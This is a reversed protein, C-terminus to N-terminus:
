TEFTAAAFRGTFTKYQIYQVHCVKSWCMLTLQLQSLAVHIALRGSHNIGVYFMWQRGSVRLLPRDSAQMDSKTDCTNQAAQSKGQHTPGVSKSSAPIISLALCCVTLAGRPTIEYASLLSWPTHM